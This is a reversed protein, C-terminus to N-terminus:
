LLFSFHPVPYTAAATRLKRLVRPKHLVLKHMCFLYCGKRNCVAGEKKSSRSVTAKFLNSAAGRNNNLHRPVGGLLLFAAPYGM